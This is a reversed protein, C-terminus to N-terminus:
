REESVSVRFKGGDKFSIVFENGNRKLECVFLAKFAGYLEDSFEELTVYDSPYMCDFDTEKKKKKRKNYDDKM